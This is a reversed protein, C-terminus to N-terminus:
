LFGNPQRTPNNVLPSFVFVFIEFEVGNVDGRVEVDGGVVEQAVRVVGGRRPLFFLEGCLASLLVFFIHPKNLPEM